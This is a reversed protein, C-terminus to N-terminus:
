GHSHIKLNDYVRVQIDAQLREEKTIMQAQQMAPQQIFGLAQSGFQVNTVQMLFMNTNDTDM